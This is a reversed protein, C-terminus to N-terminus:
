AYPPIHGAHPKQHCLPMRITLALRCHPATGSCFISDVRGAVVVVVVIFLLLILILSIDTHILM